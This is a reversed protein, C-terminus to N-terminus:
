REAEIWSLLGAAPMAGALVARGMRFAPVGLIGADHASREAARVDPEHTDLGLAVHLGGPEVGVRAAMEVLTDLRGVDLGDRWVADYVADLMDLDLGEARAHLVAEHAKRTRALMRPLVLRVGQAGALAMAREVEEGLAEVAPPLPVPAPYLEFPVPELSVGARSAAERAAALGVRCYASNFDHYFHLTTM